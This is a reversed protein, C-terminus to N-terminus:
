SAVGFCPADHRDHGASDIIGSKRSNTASDRCSDPGIYTHWLIANGARYFYWDREESETIFLTWCGKRTVRLRHVHTARFLRIWPARYKRIGAPAPEVYGGWLGISLFWKPHDHPDRTWDSGLYHHLYVRRGRGFRALEWRHIYRGKNFIDLDEFKFLRNILKQLSLQHWLEFM